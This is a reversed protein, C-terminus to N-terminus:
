RVPGSPTLTYFLRCNPLLGKVYRLGASSIQTSGIGLARLDRLRRLRTLESDTVITHSLDLRRLKTMGKLHIMGADTVRTKQLYLRSLNTLGSLHALGADTVKTDNIYLQELNPIEKLHALAEDIKKTERRGIAMVAQPSEDYYYLKFGDLKKIAVQADRQRGTFPIRCQPFVEKLVMAGAYTVATEKLWVVKPNTLGEDTV